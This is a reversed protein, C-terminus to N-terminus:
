SEDSPSTDLELTTNIALSRHNHSSKLVDINWGPAAFQPLIERSFAEAAKSRYRNPNFIFWLTRKFVVGEIPACHLVDMQM